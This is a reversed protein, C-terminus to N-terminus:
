YVLQNWLFQIFNVQAQWVWQLYLVIFYTSHLTKTNKSDLTTQVDATFGTLCKFL